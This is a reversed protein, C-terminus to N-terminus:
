PSAERPSLIEQPTPGDRHGCAACQHYTLGQLWQRAGCHPCPRLAAHDISFLHPVSASLDGTM